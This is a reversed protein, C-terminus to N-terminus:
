VDEIGFLTMANVTTKSALIARDIGRFKALFDAVTGVRMPENINGRFPAPTLYPADTELVLNDMPIRSFMDIQEPKRTFTAIGNVGIYLGRDIARALNAQSDTFSHLVGRLGPYKDFIPWFDEYAERVHFIVPLNREKALSLQFDLVALQDNKPSHEYFYDLGCEGIAVVKPRDILAAFASLQKEKAAYNVAEHPHLGISAYCDPKDAVFDVALQSDALDCGVCILRTVGHDVAAKIVGEPTLEPALAWKESTTRQGLSAGISQIHCHTDVLEQM